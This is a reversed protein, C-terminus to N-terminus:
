VIAFITVPPLGTVIELTYFKKPAMFRHFGHSACGLASARIPRSLTRLRYTKQEPSDEKQLDEIQM